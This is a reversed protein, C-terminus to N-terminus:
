ARAMLGPMDSERDGVYTNVTVEVYGDDLLRVMVDRGTAAAHRGVHTMPKENPKAKATRGASRRLTLREVAALEVM